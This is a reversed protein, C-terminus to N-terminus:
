SQSLLASLKLAAMGKKKEEKGRGVISTAFDRLRRGLECNPPITKGATLARHTAGHDEPFVLAIPFNFVKQMDGSGLEYRSNMRNILLSCRDSGFGMQDMYSLMKRTLHLSPLEPNCVIYAHDAEGLAVQSIREYASPLDVVVVEYASRTYEIVEHVRHGDIGTIEPKDPALLVDVGDKKTVLAAWLASDLKESHRLADLVGYSHNTRLAFSVTGGTLDFDVLLVRRKGEQSMAFATQYAITSAGQGAKAGVFAIVKGREQLTHDQSERLRLVRTIVTSQSEVDFPSCLFETAGARLSRIIVGADNTEHLGIVHITPRFATILGILEIATETEASLDLLVVDPRSQRLRTDLQRASPYRKLDAMIEFAKADPMSASLRQALSRNPCILVAMLEARKRIGYPEMTM